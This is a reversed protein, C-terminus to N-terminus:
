ETTTSAAFRAILGDRRPGAPVLATIYGRMVQQVEAVRDPSDIAAGARAQELAERQERTPRNLGHRARVSKLARTHSGLLRKDPKSSNLVQAEREFGAHLEAWDAAGFTAGYLPDAGLDGWFRVLQDPWDEGPSM